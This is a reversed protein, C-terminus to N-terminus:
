KKYPKSFSIIKMESSTLQTRATVTVGSNHTINRFAGGRRADPEAGISGYAPNM